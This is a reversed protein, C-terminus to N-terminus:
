FLFRWPAHIGQGRLLTGWRAVSCAVACLMMLVSVIFWPMSLSALQEWLVDAGDRLVVKRFIVTLMTLSFFVKVGLLITKRSLFNM